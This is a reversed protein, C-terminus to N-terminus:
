RKHRLVQKKEHKKNTRTEHAHMLSLASNVLAVHSFAQPFNGLMRKNRPDYEESLLGIDNAFRAVRNFLRTAAPLRGQLVYNDVLWFSCALFAGEGPELGDVGSETQYRMVLGDRVLHKEIEAITRKIRPDSPPLFGLIPLLLLSADLRDSGYSQVFCGRKEDIGMRCVQAHIEDAVKQWRRRDRASANESHAARDFAVWTMAKSHTFHQASGRIEWIGEDPNRWTKELHTLIAERLEVRRPAPPLGGKGALTMVDALEGYIDLQLQMAAANGVRVPKSSEYGALWDIEWEDLRREGAVGYMTQIQAPAGAIVRMLWHQWVNAEDMFGANMFALLTFAADRLWCYRYDWNREGGIHEPLSTTPAAVIGGTPRYTLGKLTILSRMIRKRWQPTVRAGGTWQRWFAETDVLAEDADFPEPPPLHSEGHTLVFFVREGKKVRFNGVTRMDRGMLRVPSRLVLLHPGAVAIHTTPGTRTVWPITLGYDFRIVLECGMDVEGSLGEVIRVISIHPANVPMFDILRARGTKTKFTTELIMTDDRYLRTTQAESRPTILWRGNDPTGLLASFCAGSDFRPVCWWDISGNRCILAATRCDGLMAYDEIRATM